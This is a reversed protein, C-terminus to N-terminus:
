EGRAAGPRDARGVQRRDRRHRSAGERATASARASTTTASAPAAPPRGAAPRSVDRTARHCGGETGGGPVTHWRAIKVCSVRYMPATAKSCLNQLPPRLSYQLPPQHELPAPARAQKRNGRLSRRNHGSVSDAQFTARTSEVPLTARVCAPLCASLSPQMSLWVSFSASVTQHASLGSQCVRPCGCLRVSLCSPPNISASTPALARRAYQATWVPGALLANATALTQRATASATATGRAASPGM